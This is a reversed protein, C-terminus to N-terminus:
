RSFQSNLFHNIFTIGARCRFLAPYYFKVVFYKKNINAYYIYRIREDSIFYFPFNKDLIAFYRRACRQCFFYRFLAIYIRDSLNALKRSRKLLEGDDDTDSTAGAPRKGLAISSLKPRSQGSINASRSFTARSDARTVSVIILFPILSVFACRGYLSRRHSYFLKTLIFFLV